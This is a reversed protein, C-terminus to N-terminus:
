AHALRKREFEMVRQRCHELTQATMVSRSEDRLEGHLNKVLCQATEVMFDYAQMPDEPGPLCMFFSVGPTTFSDISDLDFTGPQLINAMSFQVQGSDEQRHFINMDGHRLGCALLIHLLDPGKFPEAEPAMVNIIVVEQESPDVKAAPAQAKQELQQAREEIPDLLETEAEAVASMAELPLEDQGPEPEPEAVVSEMLMPVQQDLQLEDSSEVRVRVRAGGGPLESSALDDYDDSNLYKKNLSMRLNGRRENRVRRYGDLLVATILLVGVIIMWDRIDLDM